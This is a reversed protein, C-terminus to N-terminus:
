FAIDIFIIVHNLIKVATATSIWERAHITADIWFAKRGEGPKSIQVMRMRYVCIPRQQSIVFYFRDFNCAVCSMLNLMIMMM